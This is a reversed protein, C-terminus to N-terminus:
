LYKNLINAVYPSEELIKLIRNKFDNIDKYNKIKERVIKITEQSPQPHPPSPPQPESPCQPQPAPTSDREIIYKLISNEVDNEKWNLEEPQNQKIFAIVNEVENDKIKDEGKAILFKTFGEKYNDNQFIQKLDFQNKQINPLLKKVFDIDIETDILEFVIKNIDDIIEKHHEYQINSYKLSWIPFGINKVVDKIKWRVDQLGTYEKIDFLNALEKILEKEEESGLRVNLKDCGRNKQWCEFIENVKDRMTITDILVGSNAVYLKDVFSRFAYGLVAMNLINTYLGYPPRSLFKLEEALNFSPKKSAKDIVNKVQSYIEIVPHTISTDKIKLKNDIVYDSDKDKFIDKIYSYQAKPQTELDTRSNGNLVYEIAKKASQFQWVTAIKINISDIGKNFIKKAIDDNIYKGINKIDNVVKNDLFHAYIDLYNISDIWGNIIKKAFEEEKASEDNYSHNRLVNARALYEIFNKYKDEKLPEQINIFIIHKFEEEQKIQNILNAITDNEDNNIKLFVAFDLFYSPPFYKNLNSKLIHLNTDASFIKVRTKRLIGNDENFFREIRNKGNFEIIKVIDKYQNKLSEKESDVEHRPLSTSSIEFLDNPNKQIIEQKDIYTLADNVFDEIDTGIFLNRINDIHPRVKDTEPNSYDTIRYLSNLLLVGKFVNLYAPNNDEIQKKYANYKELVQMFRNDKDRELEEVYFDWLLDATLLKKEDIEKNLFKVFGSESDYIFNFISRQTSGINRALFTSLYVTYPHIPYLNKISEEVKVGNDNQTIYTVLENLKTNIFTENRLEEWKEPNKKQLAASLIQYTTIPVMPYKLNHFRDKVKDLTDQVNKGFQNYDRHSILYLYVNDRPSLEAISQIENIIESITEKELITTFEDWFIMLGSAIEKKALENSVEKLWNSIKEHSFHINKESLIREVIRLFEINEQELKAVIDNKNSVYMELDPNEKIISDWNLFNDNIKEIIKDFDSKTTININNQRLSKKVAREIELSLTRADIVNGGGKLVVPFIKKEQRFAKIKEKVEIKSISNDLYDNISELDDWLLHKIVSSAHSKGTGYRGVLWISLKNKIDASNVALLTKNLIEYFKENPIFQKWYSGTENEMNFVPQFYEQLGIIESFKM